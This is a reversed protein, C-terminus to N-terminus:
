EWAGSPTRHVRLFNNITAHVGVVYEIMAACKLDVYTHSPVYSELSGGFARMAGQMIAYGIAKKM